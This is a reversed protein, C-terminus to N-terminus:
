RGNNNIDTIILKKICNLEKQFYYLPLNDQQKETFEILLELAVCSCILKVSNSAKIRLTDTLNEVRL